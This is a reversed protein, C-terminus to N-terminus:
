CIEAGKYQAVKWVRNKDNLKEFFYKNAKVRAKHM